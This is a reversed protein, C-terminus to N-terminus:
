DGKTVVISVVCLYYGFFAIQVCSCSTCIGDSKKLKPYTAIKKAVADTIFEQCMLYSLTVLVSKSNRIILDEFDTFQSISPLLGLHLIRRWLLKRELRISFHANRKQVTVQVRCSRMLIEITVTNNLKWFGSGCPYM